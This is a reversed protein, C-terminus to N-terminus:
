HSTRTRVPMPAPAPRRPTPTETPGRRPPAPESPRTAGQRMMGQHPTARVRRHGCGYASGYSGGYGYGYGCGGGALVWSYPIGDGGYAFPDDATRSADAEAASARADAERIRASAEARAASAAAEAEQARLEGDRESLTMWEGGFQVFGRARYAEAATMWRGDVLTEGLGRHAAANDPDSTVARGFASRAQTQLGRELAWNGLAAWGAADGPALAAARAQYTALDSSGEVIREVRSAPITLRGPAVEIVVSSAGREVVVGTLQGGGKLFVQDAALPSASLLLFALTRKM